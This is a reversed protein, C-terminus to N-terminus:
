SSAMIDSYKNQDKLMELFVEYKRKHYGSVSTDPDIVEGCGGMAAMVAQINPFDGSACAGLMAAGLLVSEESDPLVVPVGLIDTHTQVYLKNKRLGGCMYVVSVTHGSREMESIIHRTGYALAQVTALYLLALDEDNASLSLGSMMGRLKPDAVPSRNGHFDPWMHIDQTLQAISPCGRKVVLQALLDNLYDSVHMGKQEAKSRVTNYAPHGEVVFDILKGTASQGGENVWMGPVMASFYPGWVGPVSVRCSSCIIHCTSTGAIVVLRQDLDPLQSKSSSCSVCALAGAHADILSTGVPIGVRLGLEDAATQSLGQGCPCGAALVVQGLKSYCNEKLEELGLKGLFDDDWSTRGTNDAQYSWKCVLSCLSRSLSNTARWTLFDPLDFFHAAEAWTQALHKKIWMLKPTQMELSMVGGVSDLVPHKTSNIFEAEKKARHDMWMIINQQREGNPSVSLPQFNADLVVMSCTADFGIGKINAQDVKCEKMVDRVASIICSWINESSQEYFDPQDNWIRIAKVSSGLVTGQDDVVAARVSSTGVDVGVYFRSKPM